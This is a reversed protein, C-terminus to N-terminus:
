DPGLRAGITEIKRGREEQKDREAYLDRLVDFSALVYGSVSQRNMRKRESYSLITEDNIVIAILVELMHPRLARATTEYTQLARMRAESPGMGSAFGAPPSALDRSPRLGIAGLEFEKRFRRAAYAHGKNITSNDLLTQVSDRARHGHVIRATRRVLSLDDPDVWSGTIATGNEIRVKHVVRNSDRDDRLLGVVRRRIEVKEAAISARSRPAVPPGMVAAASSPLKAVKPWPRLVIGVPMDCLRVRLGIVRYRAGSGDGVVRRVKSVSVATLGSKSAMFTGAEPPQVFAEAAFVMEIVRPTTLRRPEAREDVPNAM